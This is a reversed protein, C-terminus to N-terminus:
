FFFVVKHVMYMIQSNEIVSKKIMKIHQMAQQVIFLLVLRKTLLSHMSLNVLNVIQKVDNAFETKPLLVKQVIKYAAM